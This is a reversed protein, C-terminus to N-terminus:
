PSGAATEDLVIRQLQESEDFILYIWILRDGGKRRIVSSLMDAGHPIDNRAQISNRDPDAFEQEFEIGEARLYDAAAAKSDGAALHESLEVQLQEASKGEDCSSAFSLILLGLIGLEIIAPRSAM